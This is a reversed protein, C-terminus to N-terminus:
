CPHPLGWPGTGAPPHQHGLQAADDGGTLAASCPTLLIPSPLFPTQVVWCGRLEWCSGASPVSSAAASCSGRSYGATQEWHSEQPTAPTAEWRPCHQQPMAPATQMHLEWFMATPNYSRPRLGGAFTPQSTLSPPLLAPLGQRRTAEASSDGGAAGRGQAAWPNQVRGTGPNEQGLAGTTVWGGGM